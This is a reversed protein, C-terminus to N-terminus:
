WVSCLLECGLKQQRAEDGLLIGKNTSLITVGFGSRVVPIKEVNVYKRLGPRSERQLNNIVPIGSSDYKLYVRMVGQKADRVVKFGKIYGARKLSEAVGEKLKSYPLDVKEHKATSANRIRTLLDAIPDM